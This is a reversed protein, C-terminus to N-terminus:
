AGVPVLRKLQWREIAPLMVKHTSPRDVVAVDRDNVRADHADLFWAIAAPADCAEEIRGPLALAVGAARLGDLADFLRDLASRFQARGFGARPGLGIVVLLDQPLRGGLPFLLREDEDGTLFGEIALRSLRGLLRWDIMGSFGEFPELGSFRFLGVAREKRGELRRLDPAILSVTGM